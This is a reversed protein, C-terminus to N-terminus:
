GRGLEADTQLKIRYEHPSIGELEKFVRSFQKTNEFGVAKGIDALKMAGDQLLAKARSIRLKKLYAVFNEGTHAKFAESFYSYNLSVHNSVMAMNLPRHYNEEMYAIAAKMESHESHASRIGQIYENVSLLLHELSRYYAHFHRYNDMTGVRRYLKLVEVMSEGYVRFVEDLVQENIQKGVRELYAIDVHPMDGIHFIDLLLTKIERDRGTGLMNGLKRIDEEPMPYTRLEGNIDEHNMLRINPQIFTYSLALLAQSYCIRVDEIRSGERSIGVFLGDMEREAFQRALKEFQGDPSGVLVLRGRGDLLSASIRGEVSEMMKEVLQKLEDKNMTNGDEYKYKMVAVRFPKVYAEFGILEAAAALDIGTDEPQELLEKLRHSQLQQLYVDTAAMRSDVEAQRILAEETKRLAAFLEERRIPKLLYEKVQYRIAAKAYEFDEYGSLILVVPKAAGTGELEALSEILRIGDMVPMRIDTIVIDAPQARLLQLAEEGQSAMRIDYVEPFEREIMMKLGFRINKEDDVILLNRM